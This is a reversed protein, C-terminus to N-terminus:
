PNDAAFRKKQQTVILRTLSTSQQDITGDIEMLQGLNAIRRFAYM